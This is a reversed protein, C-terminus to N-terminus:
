ARPRTRAPRSSSRTSSRRWASSARRSSRGSATTRRRRRTPADAGAPAAPMVPEETPLPATSRPGNPPTWTTAWSSTPPSSTPCASTPPARTPWSSRTRGARAAARQRGARRARPRARRCGDGARDRGRRRADRSSSETAPQRRRREHGAGGRPRLPRVAAARLRPDGVARGPPPPSLRRLGGLLPRPRLGQAHQGRDDRRRQPRRGRRHRRPQGRRRGHLPRPRGPAAVDDVALRGQRGQRQGRHGLVAAAVAREPFGAAM